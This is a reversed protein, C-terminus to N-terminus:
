FQLINEDPQGEEIKRAARMQGQSSVIQLHSIRAQLQVAGRGPVLGSALAGRQQVCESPAFSVFINFDPSISPCLFHCFIVAVIM